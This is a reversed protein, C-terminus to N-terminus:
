TAIKEVDIEDILEKLARITQERNGRALDITVKMGDINRRITKTPVSERLGLLEYVHLPQGFGKLRLPSMEKAIVADKVLSWTEHAILIKGPEAASKLRAALNVAGGIITYDMRDQSGFNGVTCFGTNIGMRVRFPRELGADQWQSELRRSTTADRGGHRRM